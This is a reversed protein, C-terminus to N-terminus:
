VLDIKLELKVSFLEFKEVNPVGLSYKIESFPQNWIRKIYQLQKTFLKKIKLITIKQKIYM